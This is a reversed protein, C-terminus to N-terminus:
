RVQVPLSIFEPTRDNSYVAVARAVARALELETSWEWGEAGPQGYGAFTGTDNVFYAQALGLYLTQVEAQGGGPLPRVEWALTVTRNFKNAENLLAVVNQARQALAADDVRELRDLLPQVRSLLVTPFIRALEQVEREILGLQRQVREARGDLRESEAALEQRRADAEGATEEAERIEDALMQLEMEMWEVSQQLVAQEEQWRTREASIARRTEVWQHLAERTTELRDSQAPLDGASVLLLAALLSRHSPFFM